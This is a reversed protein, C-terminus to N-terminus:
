TGARRRERHDDRGDRRGAGAMRWRSRARTGFDGVTLSGATAGSRVAEPSRRPGPRAPETGSIGASMPSMALAPFRSRGLARIDSSSITRTRGHELRERFGDSRWGLRRLRRSLRQFGFCAGRRKDRADGQRYRRRPSQRHEDLADRKRIGDGDRDLGAM